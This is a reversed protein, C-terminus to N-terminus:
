RPFSCADRDPRPLHPPTPTDLPSPPPTRTPAITATPLRTRTPPPTEDGFVLVPSGGRLIRASEHPLLLSIAAVCLCLGFLAAVAAAIFVQPRRHQQPSQM